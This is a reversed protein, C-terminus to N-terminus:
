YQNKLSIGSTALLGGLTALVLLIVWCSIGVVNKRFQRISFVQTCLSLLVRM